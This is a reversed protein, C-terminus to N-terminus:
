ELANGHLRSMSAINWQVSPSLCSRTHAISSFPRGMVSARCRCSAASPHFLVRLAYGFVPQETFMTSSLFFFFCQSNQSRQRRLFLSLHLIITSLFFSVCFITLLSFSLGSCRRCCSRSGLVVDAVFHSGLVNGVVCVIHLVNDYFIFSTYFTTPLFRCASCQRLFFSICFMTLLFFSICFKLM